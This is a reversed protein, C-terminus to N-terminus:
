ALWELILVLGAALAGALAVAALAAVATGGGGPRREMDAFDQDAPSM